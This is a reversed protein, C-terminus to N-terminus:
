KRLDTDMNREAEEGKERERERWQECAGQTNAVSMRHLVEIVIYAELDPQSCGM